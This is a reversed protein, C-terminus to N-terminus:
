TPEPNYTANGYEATKPMYWFINMTKQYIGQPLRQRFTKKWIVTAIFNQEGYIEDLMGRANAVENDDLSIWISGDERLFQWLLKMRPYMMCLWKDHRSLDESEGGVVKGLWDRM